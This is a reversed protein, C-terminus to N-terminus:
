RGVVAALKTQTILRKFRIATTSMTVREAVFAM